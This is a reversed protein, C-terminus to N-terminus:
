SLVEPNAIHLPREGSLLRVLDDAIIASHNAETDYTAGGIHPTLVVNDMTLLPHGEPLAEGQFHDLGAGGLKGSRLGDVLADLDHLGARATNLYVAGDRMKAVQAAGIMGASEPTVAAHMSVVDAEALLSDLDHTADPAFPDATIVRMGLGELRWATARGVAGLGVIGATRGALQWARFRQYPISGGAFVQNTRVDRDAPLLHRNVAFLLAVTLEAVGDANRGPAHLVPIGKATAGAVDVNTPDGRTSGIAVLPLDLVPGKCEDAECIVVTAGEGEIRAALDAAGYLRLPQHDIWPDLIPEAVKALTELGPGRFPATVLARPRDM